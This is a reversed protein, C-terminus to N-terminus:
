RHCGGVLVENASATPRAMGKGQTVSVLCCSREESLLSFSLDLATHPSGFYGRLLPDAGAATQKRGRQWRRPFEGLSFGSTGEATPRADKNLEARDLEGRWPTTRNVPPKKKNQLSM